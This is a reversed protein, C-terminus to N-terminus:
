FDPLSYPDSASREIADFTHETGVIALFAQYNGDLTDLPGKRDADFAVVDFRKSAGEISFGYVILLNKAPM